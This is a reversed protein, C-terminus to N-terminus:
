SAQKRRWPAIWGERQAGILLTSIAGQKAEDTWQEGADKLTEVVIHVVEKFAIDFPIQTPTSGNQISPRPMSGINKSDVQPVPVNVAAATTKSSPAPQRPATEDPWLPAPEKKLSKAIEISSRTDGAKQTKAIEISAKLDKALPTEPETPAIRRVAFAVGRKQDRKWEEKGILFEEGPQIKLDAIQGAASLSVYMRRIAGQHRCAFVMQDAYEEKKKPARSGHLGIHETAVLAVREMKNIKFDVRNPPSGNQQQENM